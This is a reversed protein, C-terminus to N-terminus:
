DWVMDSLCIFFIFFHSHNLLYFTFMELSDQSWRRPVCILSTFPMKKMESWESDKVGFFTSIHSFYPGILSLCPVTRLRLAPLTLAPLLHATWIIYCVLLSWIMTEMCLNFMDGLFARRCTRSRQLYTWNMYPFLSIYANLCLLLM